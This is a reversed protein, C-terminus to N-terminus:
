YQMNPSLITLYVSVSIMGFYGWKEFEQDDSDISTQRDTLSLQRILRATVDVQFGHARDVKKEAALSICIYTHIYAMWGYM